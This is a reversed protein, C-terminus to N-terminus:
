FSTVLEDMKFHLEAGRLNKAIIIGNEDLLFNSPISQVNYNSAASSNWGKLDSVHYKWDLGDVKIAKKWRNKDTDLSVSFIDFGKANEFEAKRYKKWASVLNPNEKRCPGCWSAWFDVLVIKDELKSLKFTKGKPSEMEIEPAKNGVEFGIPEDPPPPPPKTENNSCTQIFGYSAITIGLLVLVINLKRSM